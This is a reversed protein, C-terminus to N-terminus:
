AVETPPQGMFSANAAKAIRQGNERARRRESIGGMGLVEPTPNAPRSQAVSELPADAMARQHAALVDNSPRRAKAVRELLQAEADADGAAAKAGLMSAEPDRIAWAAAIIADQMWEESLGALREQEVEGLSLFWPLPPRGARLWRSYSPATLDVSAAPKRLQWLVAGGLVLLMSFGLILITDTM